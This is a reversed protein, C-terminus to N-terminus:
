FDHAAAQERKQDEYATRLERFLHLAEIDSSTKEDIFSSWGMGGKPFTYGYYETVFRDFDAPLLADLETKSSEELNENRATQYGLLFAQFCAFHDPSDGWYMGPRAVIHDLISETDQSNTDRM